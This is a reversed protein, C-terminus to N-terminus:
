GNGLHCGALESQAASRLRLWSAHLNTVAAQVATITGTGNAVATVASRLRALSSSFADVENGLQGSATSRVEKLAQQVADLRDSITSAAGPGVPVSLLDSVARSLDHLSTCTKSSTTSTTPTTSTGQSGCGGLLSVAGVVVVVVAGRYWRPRTRVAM